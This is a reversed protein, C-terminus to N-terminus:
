HLQHNNIQNESNLSNKAHILHNKHIITQWLKNKM